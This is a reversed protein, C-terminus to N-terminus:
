QYQYILREQTDPIKAREEKTIKKTPTCSCFLLLNFSILLILILKKM